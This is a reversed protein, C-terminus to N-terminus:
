AEEPDEENPVPEPEPPEGPITRTGTAATRNEPEAQDPNGIRPGAVPGDTGSPVEVTPRLRGQDQGERTDQYPMRRAMGRTRRLMRRMEKPDDHRKELPLRPDRTRACLLRMNDNGQM